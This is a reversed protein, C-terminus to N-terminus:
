HDGHDAGDPVTSAGVSGGIQTGTAVARAADAGSTIIPNQWPAAPISPCTWPASPYVPQVPTVAKILAQSLQDIIKQQQAILADKQKLLAEM